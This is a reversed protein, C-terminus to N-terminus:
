PYQDEGRSRPHTRTARTTAGPTSTRGARAPTLGARQPGCTHVNPGGRALPPSDEWGTPPTLSPADEGRSRPHTRGLVEGGERAETRGARAPTLGDLAPDTVKGSHGGRALPPSDTWTGAATAARLDEGRSRPHTGHGVGRGAVERTRGARAPTLGHVRVADGVVVRGGRALPPSDSPGSTLDGAGSDEGRSRPHTRELRHETRRRRTRGARAPTLGEGGLVGGDADLGGRALPPSDTRLAPVTIVDKDEGRSRPHTGVVGIGSGVQGTRGARAPTLGRLRPSLDVPDPGGRALPPSDELPQRPSPTDNDEGRSRPHTRRRTRSTM